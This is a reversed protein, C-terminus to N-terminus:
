DEERDRIWAHVIQWKSGASRFDLLDLRENQLYRGGMMAADDPHKKAWREYESLIARRADEKKVRSM